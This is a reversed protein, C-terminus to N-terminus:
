HRQHGRLCKRGHGREQVLTTHVVPAPEIYQASVSTLKTAVLTGARDIAYVGSGTAILLHHYPLEYVGRYSSTGPALYVDVLAGAPTLEVVGAQAGSYNAVLINNNAALAIQEPFDDIAALNTIFAGTTLNYRKVEDTDISSVLWNQGPRMFIDFPGNLGGSGPAIFNGLYAGSTDFEAVSNQNTGSSVTVLLHSNHRLAIGVSNDLKSNDAGGAPAFVGQYVGGLSYKQVVDELQDAVLIADGAQNLIANKPTSLHASDPPIFNANILNGSVPDFAM